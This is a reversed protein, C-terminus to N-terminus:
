PTYPFVNGVGAGVAAGAPGGILGGIITTIISGISSWISSTQQADYGMEALERRLEAELRWMMTNFEQQLRLYEFGYAQERALKEFQFGFGAQMTSWNFLLQRITSMERWLADYGRAQADFESLGGQFASQYVRQYEDRGVAFAAEQIRQAFETAGVESSFVKTYERMGADWADAAAEYHAMGTRIRSEYVKTYENMGAQWADRQQGYGMGVHQMALNLGIVIGDQQRIVSEKELQARYTGRASAAKRTVEREAEREMGSRILNKGAWYERLEPMYEGMAIREEETYAAMLEEVPLGLGEGTLMRSIVDEAQGFMPGMQPYEVPFQEYIPLRLEPYPQPFPEYIPLDSVPYEAGFAQYRPLTLTPYPAEYTIEWPEKPEVTPVEETPVEETPLEEEEGTIWTGYVSQLHKAMPGTGSSILGQVYETFPDSWEHIRFYHKGPWELKQREEWAPAGGSEGLLAEFEAETILTVDQLWDFYPDAM